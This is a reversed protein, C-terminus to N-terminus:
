KDRFIRYLSFSFQGVAMFVSFEFTKAEKSEVKLYSVGEPHENFWSYPLLEYFMPVDFLVSTVANIAILVGVILLTKTLKM